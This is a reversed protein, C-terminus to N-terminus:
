VIPEMFVTLTGGCVMGAQKADTNTMNCTSIQPKGSKIVDATMACIQGEGAGGGISGSLIKGQADLLMKAGTSRPASGNKTIITAMMEAQNINDLCELMSDEMCGEAFGSRRVQVLEAAICVAIEAPTQAGIKLGIPAYVQALQEESYGDEKMQQMVVAVKRKSGIMGVYAYPRHLIEELCQRDASHGRTVIVYYTNPNSELQEFASKFDACIVNHVTSFRQINAFEERDDIVTVEFDLMVGIQALPLSIHGGGCIVLRPRRVLNEALVQIGNIEATCPANEFRSDSTASHWFPLLLDNQALLTESTRLAKQGANEGSIITYLQVSGKDRIYRAVEKYFQYNNM